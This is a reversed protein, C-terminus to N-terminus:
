RLYNIKFIRTDSNSYVDTLTVNSNDYACTATNCLFTFDFLNSRTLKPGLVYAGNIVHGSYGVMLTYNVTTFNESTNAISYFSSSTNYFIVSRMQALRTGNQLGLFASFAGTGNTPQQRILLEAKYYPYANGEFTFFQTTSNSTVNSVSLIVFGYQSANSVLGEQAIGGLEQYWFTRAVLYEPKGIEYLYSSDPTTNFLFKSFPYIRTGNEGGVSDMYSTRNAWGEVVSGDPWLALVTANAPTNAKMWSMAGLLVSNIGDAQVATYSEIYTNYFSFAVLVLVVGLVIYKIRIPRKVVLAYIAYCTVAVLVISILASAASIAAFSGSFYGDKFLSYVVVVSVIILAVVILVSVGKRESAMDYFMMGIGYLAFAAFVSLPVSIIANFRIASIQLYVTVALYALVVLFGVTYIKFDRRAILVEGFLIFLAFAGIVAAGVVALKLEPGGGLYIMLGFGALIIAAAAAFTIIHRGLRKYLLVTVALAVGVVALFMQLNFSSWLFQFNPKQLEQTTTTISTRAATSNLITTNTTNVVAAAPSVPSAISIITSGFLAFMIAFAVLGAAVTALARNRATAILKIRHIYATACYAVISGILIPLYFIFFDSGSFQVGFRALDASIYLLQLIHMLLLTASVVVGSLLVAKDSKIFGYIIALLLAFMYVVIIFPSGNWVVIGTGLSAAALVGWVWKMAHKKEEFCKVMFLLALMIFLTIFSDGRYVTGATRAINGSSLSVLLMALLGLARSKSITKALYYALLAYIVGFLIPMWRMVALLSLGTIGRLLYYAIVTLYILGPAEGIFNHWPFGSINLYNSVVFNNNVAQRIVSYYFFGDPEFLGQYQLMGTRLVVNIILILIAICLLLYRNELVADFKIGFNFNSSAHEHGEKVEHEHKEHHQHQEGNGETSSSDGYYKDIKM